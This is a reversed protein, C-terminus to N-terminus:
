NSSYVVQFSEDSYGMVEIENDDFDQMYFNYTNETHKVAQYAETYPMKFTKPGHYLQVNMAELRRAEKVIDHVILAFHCYGKDDTCNDDPYSKNLLELCQDDNIKVIVKEATAELLDLLLVDTYFTKAKQLNNVHYTLKSIYKEGENVIIQNGEPDKILDHHNGSGLTAYQYSYRDEKSKGDYTPWTTISNEPFIEIFQHRNLQYYVIRDEDLKNKLIFGTKLKLTNEYFDRFAKENKLKFSIHGIEKVNQNM